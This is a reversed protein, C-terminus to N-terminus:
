PPLLPLLVAVLVLVSPPLWWWRWLCCSHSCCLFFGSLFRRPLPPPSLPSPPLPAAAHSTLTVVVPQAPSALYVSLAASPPLIQEPPCVRECAFMRVHSTCAM